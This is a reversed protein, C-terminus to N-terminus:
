RPVGESQYLSFVYGDPDTFETSWGGPAHSVPTVITAGGAALEEVARDIGGEALDFVLIPSYGARVEGVFFILDVNGPIPANLWPRGQGDDPMREVTVGIVDRYFQETRDVDSVYFFISGVRPSRLM